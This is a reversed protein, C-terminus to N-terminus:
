ALHSSLFNVLKEQAIRRIGLRNTGCEHVVQFCDLAVAFRSTTPNVMLDPQRVVDPQAASSCLYGEDFRLVEHVGCSAVLGGPPQELLDHAVYGPCFLEDSPELWTAFVDPILAYPYRLHPDPGGREFAVWFRQGIVQPHEM